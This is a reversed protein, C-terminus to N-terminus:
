KAQREKIKRLFFGHATKETDRFITAVTESLEFFVCDVTEHETNEVTIRYSGSGTMHPILDLNKGNHHEFTPAAIEQWTGNTKKEITHTYM